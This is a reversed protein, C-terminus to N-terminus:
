EELDLYEAKKGALRLWAERESEAADQWGVEPHDTGLYQERLWVAEGEIEEADPSM